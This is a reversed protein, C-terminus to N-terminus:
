PNLIWHFSKFNGSVTRSWSRGDDSWAFLGTSDSPRDFVNTYIDGFPGMTGSPAGNVSTYITCNVRSDIHLSGAIGRTKGQERDLKAQAEMEEAKKAQAMLGKGEGGSLAAVAKLEASNSRLKALTVAEHMLKESKIAARKGSAKEAAALEVACATLGVPDGHKKAEEIRLGLSALSPFSVGLEKSFNITSACLHQECKDEGKLEKGGQAGLQM